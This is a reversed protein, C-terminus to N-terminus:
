ELESIPEKVEVKTGDFKQKLWSQIAPKRFLTVLKQYQKNDKQSARTALINVNGKTTKDVKEHYLSDKLVNLGGQFAITNNILVLDLDKMVRPGTTDDIEKFQLGLPNKTVDKITGLANFGKKLKILGAQQLLLLQRSENAPNNAIGVTAGHPIAKLSKIKQSYIGTPEMYTTGLAVLRKGKAQTRNFSKFYDWSQFANVDIEGEQTARNLQVGDSFSQVQIKLGLQKAAQSKAIHQWAAVDSGVSGVKIVKDASGTAQAHHQQVCGALLVTLGAALVLLPRVWKKM